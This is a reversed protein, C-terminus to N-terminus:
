LIGVIRLLIIWDLTGVCYDYYFNDAVSDLRLGSVSTTGYRSFYACLRRCFLGIRHGLVTISTFIIRSRIWDLDRYVLQESDALTHVRDAVFYDLGTDWCLLRLLFSGRGFGICTRIRL